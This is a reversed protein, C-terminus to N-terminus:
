KILRRSMLGILGFALIAISSPEPVDVATNFSLTRQNLDFNDSFQEYISTTTNWAGRTSLDVSSGTRGGGTSIGVLLDNTNLSNFMIEVLGNQFLSISFSNSDSNSFQPINSYVASFFTASKIVEINGGTAPDFDDWVAIRAQEDLFESVSETFDTDGSTFTLYGNSGVFVSNYTQGFFTFDFGITQESFSDDSLNIITAMAQQSSLMFVFLCFINKIVKIM